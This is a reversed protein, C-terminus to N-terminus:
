RRAATVVVVLWTDCAPCIVYGGREGADIKEKCTYGFIGAPCAITM